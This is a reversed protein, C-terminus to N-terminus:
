RRTRRPADHTRQEPPGPQPQPPDAGAMEADRRELEAIEQKTLEVLKGNVMKHKYQSM